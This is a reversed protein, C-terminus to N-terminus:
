ANLVKKFGSVVHRMSDAAASSGSRKADKLLRHHEIWDPKTMPLFITEPYADCWSNLHQLIDIARDVSDAADSEESGGIGEDLISSAIELGVIM